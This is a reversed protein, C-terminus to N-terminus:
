NQTLTFAEVSEKRMRNEIISGPSSIPLYRRGGPIERTQRSISVFGEKEALWSFLDSSRVEVGRVMSDALVLVLRGGPKLASRMQRMVDHADSAYKCIITQQRRPLQGIDPIINEIGPFMFVDFHRNKGSRETGVSNARIKRLDPITYGLWTLALKHGRLYDIANLYPPSTFIADVKGIGMKTLARCDGKYVDAQGVKAQEALLTCVTSVASIFGGYVDYNNEDRVRHPRSHSVDWALSAGVKKTVITRSLCLALVQTLEPLEKRLEYLGFVLRALHTRQPDAFWYELFNRTEVCLRVQPLSTFRARSRKAADVLQLAATKM